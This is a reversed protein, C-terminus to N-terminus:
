PNWTKLHTATVQGSHSPILISTRNDAVLHCAEHAFNSYRTTSGKWTRSLIMQHCTSSGPRSSTQLVSHSFTSLRSAHRNAHPCLSLPQNRPRTVHSPMTSLSRWPLSVPPMTPSTSVRFCSPCGKKEFFFIYVCDNGWEESLWLPIYCNFNKSSFMIFLFFVPRQKVHPCIKVVQAM